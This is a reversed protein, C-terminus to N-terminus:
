VLSDNRPPPPPAPAAKRFLRNKMALVPGTVAYGFFALFLAFEHFLFALVAALMIEVLSVFPQNGRLTRNVVHAYRVRSVMLVGTAAALVPLGYQAVVTALVDYERLAKWPLVAAAIVGAAAPSPLGAFERHSAEDPTTEATFRALRVLACGAYLVAVAVVIRNASVYGGAVAYVLFAPALGFTILDCLSDLQAGFPSSTRTMRAVLGDLADFIMGALILWAARQFHAPNNLVMLGKGISFIALVGCVGNGLTILTPLM